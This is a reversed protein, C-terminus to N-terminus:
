HMVLSSLHTRLQIMFFFLFFKKKFDWLQAKAEARGRGMSGVWLAVVAWNLIQFLFLYLVLYKPMIRTMLGSNEGSVTTYLQQMLAVYFM